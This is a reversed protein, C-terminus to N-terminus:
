SMLAAVVADEYRVADGDWLPGLYGPIMPFRRLEERLATRGFAPVRADFGCSRLASYPEACIIRVTQFPRGPGPDRVIRIKSIPLPHDGSAKAPLLM